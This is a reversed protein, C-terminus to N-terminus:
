LEDDLQAFQLDSKGFDIDTMKFHSATQIRKQRQVIHCQIERKVVSKNNRARETSGSMHKTMGAERTVEVEEVM